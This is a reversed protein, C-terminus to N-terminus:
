EAIIIKFYNEKTVGTTEFLVGDIFLDVQKPKEGVVSIDITDGTKTNFVFHKDWTVTEDPYISDNITIGVVCILCTVDMSYVVPIPQEKKCGSLLLIIILLKKM